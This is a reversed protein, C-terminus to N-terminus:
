RYSAVCRHTRHSVTLDQCLRASHIMPLGSTPRNPTLNVRLALVKDSTGRRSFHSASRTLTTGPPKRYPRPSVPHYTGLACPRNSAPNDAPRNRIGNPNDRLQPSTYTRWGEKQNRRAERSRQLHVLDHSRLNAARDWATRGHQSVSLGQTAEM